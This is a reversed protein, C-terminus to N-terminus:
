FICIIYFQYLLFVEIVIRMKHWAMIRAFYFLFIHQLQFKNTVVFIWYTDITKNTSSSNMHSFTDHIHFCVMINASM